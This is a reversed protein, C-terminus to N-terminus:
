HRVVVKKGNVIYIGSNLDKVQGANIRRGQLDFIMTEGNLVDMYLAEIGSTEQLEFTHEADGKEFKFTYPSLADYGEASVTVTYTNVAAAEANVTFSYKGAGESKVEIVSGKDDTAEVKADALPAVEGKESKGNVQATFTYKVPTLEYTTEVDQGYFFVPQKALEEYYPASIQVVPTNHGVFWATVSTTYEGDANPTLETDNFMFQVDKVNAKTEADVVIATYSYIIDELAINIEKTEGRVLDTVTETFEKYYQSQAALTYSVAPAGAISFTYTGDKDVETEMAEGVAPTLTLQIDEAVEGSAAITVKGTLVTAGYAQLEVKGDYNGTLTIEESYPKFDAKEVKLTLTKGEVDIAKIPEAVSYNGDEGEAATFLLTGGDFIEVKAGAIAAQDAANVVQVNFTYTAEVLEVTKDVNGDFAFDETYTNYGDKTVKLTLTKGNVMLDTVEAVGYNGDEGETATYLLTDGSYIEVTAGTVPTNDAGTVVKANFTYIIDTIEVNVDITEGAVLTLEKLVDECGTATTKLTYPNYITGTYSLTLKGEEDTMGQARAQASDPYTLYDEDYLYCYAGNYPEGNKTVTVNVVSPASQMYALRPSDGGQVLEIDSRTYLAMGPATITYSYPNEVQGKISFVVKGDSDSVKSEIEQQASGYLTVSAGPLPKYDPGYVSITLTSIPLTIQIDKLEVDQNLDVPVVKDRFGDKKVILSYAGEEIDEISFAGTDDTTTTKDAISVEAGAVANNDEDIVNGSVSYMAAATAEFTNEIQVLLTPKAFTFTYYGDEPVEVPNFPANIMFTNLTVVLNEKVADGITYNEGDKTVKNLTFTNGPQNAIYGCKPFALTGKHLYVIMHGAQEIDSALPTVLGYQGAKAAIRWYCGDNPNDWVWGAPLYSQYDNAMLYGTTNPFTWTTTKTEARGPLACFLLVALVMLLQYIKRM